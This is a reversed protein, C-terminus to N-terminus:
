ASTGQTAGLRQKGHRDGYSNEMLLRGNGHIDAGQQNHSANPGDGGTMAPGGVPPDNINKERQTRPKEGSNRLAEGFLSEMDKRVGKNGRGRQCGAVERR